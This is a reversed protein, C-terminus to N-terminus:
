KPLLIKKRELPLGNEVHHDLKLDIRNEVTEGFKIDVQNEITM